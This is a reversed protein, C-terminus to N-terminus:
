ARWRGTRAPSIRLLSGLRISHRFSLAFDRLKTSTFLSRAIQSATTLLQSQGQAGAAALQNTADQLEQTSPDRQKAGYYLNTVFRTLRQTDGSTITTLLQDGRYGYETVPLYPAGGSQYEALLEGSMGYLQWTEVGNVNRKIRSGEADYTYTQWQNNPLGQAQKM